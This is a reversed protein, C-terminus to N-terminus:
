IKKINIILKNLNYYYNKNIIKYIIIFLSDSKLKQFQLICVSSFYQFYISIM